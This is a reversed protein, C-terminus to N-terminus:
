SINRFFNLKVVVYNSKSLACKGHVTPFMSTAMNQYLNRDKSMEYIKLLDQESIQSKIDEESFDSNPDIGSINYM